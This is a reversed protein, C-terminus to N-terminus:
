RRERDAKIAKVCDFVKLVCRVHVRYFVQAGRKESELIGANKLVALHRSVTPMEVGLMNTLEQVCRERRSVEDLIFLRTPHALAKIIEAHAKYENQRAATM